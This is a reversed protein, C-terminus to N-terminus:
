PELAFITVGDRQYAPRFYPRGDFKQPKWPGGYRGLYIYDFGRERLLAHLAAQDASQDVEQILRNIKEVYAETGLGYLAAPPWTRRGTLPSIWYGGDSGAYVHAMWEYANILFLADPATHEEVWALAARDAPALLATRPNVVDRLRYAGWASLGVLLVVGAWPLLAPRKPRHRHYLAALGGAALAVGLSLPVYLAIAVALDDVVAGIHLGPFWPLSRDLPGGPQLGLLHPNAMLVILGTWLLLLLAQRRRWLLLGLATGALAVPLLYRGPGFRVYYLSLTDVNAPWSQAAPLWLDRISPWLWPWTLGAAAAAVLLYRGWLRGPWRGRHLSRATALLLLLGALAALFAAVRVHTLLLGALAITTAAITGWPRRDTRALRDLLLAGVPLIVLGALQTYRSWSIYYAPMLSFAAPVLAAALGAWRSKAWRVGLAYLPWGALGSLAQGLLLLGQPLPMGTLWHWMAVLDQFGFHYTASAVEVYPAYDTPIIGGAVILRALLTHHVADVWLPGTLDLAHLARLLLSVTTIGGMGVLLPVTDRGAGRWRGRRLDWILLGLALAGLLGGGIRVAPPTLPLPIQSLLLHLLPIAAVSLGLCLGVLLLPDEGKARPLLRALLYGPALLLLLLAPLYRLGEWAQRCLEGAITAPPMTYYTWFTLDGEIPQGNHFATGEVYLDADHAWLTARAPTPAQPATIRLLYTEGASHPQPAFRFGFSRNHWIEEPPLTTHAIQEQCARDGCLQLELPVAPRGSEAGYDVLEVEIGSLGDHHVLLSQEITHAQDLDGAPTSHQRQMAEWDVKEVCGALTFVLALLGGLLITSRRRPKQRRAHPLLPM